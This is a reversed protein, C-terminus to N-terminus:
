GVANTTVTLHSSPGHTGVVGVGGESCATGWGSTTMSQTVHGHVDPWLYGITQARSRIGLSGRRPQHHPCRFLLHGPVPSQGALILPWLSFQGLLMTVPLRVAAWCPPELCYLSCFQSVARPIAALLLWLANSLMPSPSSLLSLCPTAATSAATSVVQTVLIGFFRSCPLSSAAESSGCAARSFPSPGLPLEGGAGGSHCGSSPKQECIRGAITGRIRVGWPCWVYCM